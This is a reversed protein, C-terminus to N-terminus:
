ACCARSITHTADERLLSHARRQAHKYASEVSTKGRTKCGFFPHLLQRVKVDKDASPKLDHQGGTHLSWVIMWV